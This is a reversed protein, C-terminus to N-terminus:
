LEGSNAPPKPAETGSPQLSDTGSTSPVGSAPPLADPNGGRPDEFVPRSPGKIGGGTPMPGNQRRPLFKQIRNNDMDAVFLVGQSDLAIQQPNMFMGSAKGKQGWMYLFKGQPTFKQLRNNGSDVVILNGDLPDFALDVPRNFQGKKDGTSGFQSLYRGDPSYRVIRDHGTDAVFVTDTPDLAVGMPEELQGVDTDEPNEPYVQLVNALKGIKQIRNNGSDAVFLNNNSDFAMGAPHSFEGPKRGRQGFTVQRVGEGTFRQVRHNLTDAVYLIGTTDAAIRLPQDFAGDKSGLEGWQAVAEGTLTLQQVRSTAFELVFLFGSPSVTVGSPRSFEGRETSAKGTPEGFSTDYTPPGPKQSYFMVAVTLMILVISIAVIWIVLRQDTAGRHSRSM